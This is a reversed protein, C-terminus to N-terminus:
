RRRETTGSKAVAAPTPRTRACPEGGAGEHQRRDSGLEHGQVARGSRSDATSEM